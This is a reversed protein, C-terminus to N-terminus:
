RILFSGLKVLIKYLFYGICIILVLVIFFGFPTKLFLMLINIKNEDLSFFGIVIQVIVLIVILISNRKQYKLNSSQIKENKNRKLVEVELKTKSIKEFTCKTKSFFLELIKKEKSFDSFLVWGDSNVKEIKRSLADFEVFAEYLMEYHDSEEYHENSIISSYKDVLNNYENDLLYFISLFNHSDHIHCSTNGYSFGYKEKRDEDTLNESKIFVSNFPIDIGFQSFDDLFSENNENIMPLLPPNRDISFSNICRDEDVLNDSILNFYSDDSKVLVELNRISTYDFSRGMLINNIRKELYSIDDNLLKLNNEILDKCYSIKSYHHLIGYGFSFPNCTKVKIEMSKENSVDLSKVLDNAEESLFWYISIYYLGSISAFHVECSKVFKSDLGVPIADISKIGNPVFFGLNHWSNDDIRSKGVGGSEYHRRDKIWKYIKDAHNSSISFASHVAVLSWDVKPDLLSHSKLDKYRDNNESYKKFEFFANSISKMKKSFLVPFLRVILNITYFLYYKQNM